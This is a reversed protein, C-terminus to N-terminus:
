VMNAFKRVNHSLIKRTFLCYWYTASLVIGISRPVIRYWYWFHGCVMHTVHLISYSFDLNPTVYASTLFLVFSEGRRTL